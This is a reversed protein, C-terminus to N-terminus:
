SDGHIYINVQFILTKIWNKLEIATDTSGDCNNSYFECCINSSYERVFASLKAWIRAVM